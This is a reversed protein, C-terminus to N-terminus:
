VSFRFIYRPQRLSNRNEEQRALQLPQGISTSGCAMYPASLLTFFAGNSPYHICSIIFCLIPYSLSLSLLEATQFSLTIRSNPYGIKLWLTLRCPISVQLSTTEHKLRWPCSSCNQKSSFLVLLFLPYCNLLDYCVVGNLHKWIRLRGTKLSSSVTTISNNNQNM